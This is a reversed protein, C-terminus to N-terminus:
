RRRITSSRSPRPIGPAAQRCRRTRRIKKQGGTYGSTTSIVGELEDFPPEMCWFCGGAFTAVAREEGAVAQEAAVAATPLSVVFFGSTLLFSLFTHTKMPQAEKPGMLTVADGGRRLRGVIGSPNPPGTGYGVKGVTDLPAAPVDYPHSLFVDSRATKSWPLSVPHGGCGCKVLKQIQGEGGGV